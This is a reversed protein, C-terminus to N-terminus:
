DRSNDARAAPANLYREYVMDFIKEAETVFQYDSGTRRRAGDIMTAFGAAEPIALDQGEMARVVFSIRKIAEDRDLRFYQMLEEFTIHKTTSGFQAGEFGFTIANNPPSESKDMLRLTAEADIFRRILWSSAIRDSLMPTRTVWTKRFFAERHRSRPVAGADSPFMLANIQKEIARLAEETADRSASGFFDVSVINEFAERQRKIVQAIAAADSIGIGIQLSQITKRVEDYRASRDFLGRFEADQSDDSAPFILVHAGGQAAQIYLKLRGIGARNTQTDPLLYVGDRLVACGLSELTRLIKM